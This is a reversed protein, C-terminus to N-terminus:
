VAVAPGPNVEEGNAVLKNTEVLNPQSQENNFFLPNDFTSSNKLLPLHCGSKKVIFLIIVTGIAIATIVLVVPLTVHGGTQPDVMPNVTYILCM